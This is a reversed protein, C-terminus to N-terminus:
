QVVFAPNKDVRPILREPDAPRNLVIRVPHQVPSKRKIKEQVIKQMTCGRLHSETWVLFDLMFVPKSVSQDNELRVLEDMLRSFPYIHQLRKGRFVNARIFDVVTSEYLPLANQKNIKRVMARLSYYVHEKNGLEFHVLLYFLHIFLVTERDMHEFRNMTIRNLFQWSRKYEHAYFATVSSQLLYETFIHAPIKGAISKMEQEFYSLLETSKIFEGQANLLQQEAIATHVFILSKYYLTGYKGDTAPLRRIKIMLTNAEKIKNQKILTNLLRLLAPFYYDSQLVVKQNKDVGMQQVQLLLGEAEAVDGRCLFIEARILLRLLKQETGTTITEEKLLPSSEISSIMEEDAKTRVYAISRKLIQLRIYLFELEFLASMRQLSIQQERKFLYQLEALEESRLGIDMTLKMEKRIAQLLIMDREKELCLNKVKVTQKRAQRILSKSQLLEADHLLASLHADTNLNDNYSRMTRLINNYLQNKATSLYGTMEDGQLRKRLREENYDGMNCLLDFLKKYNNEEGKVHIGAYKSFYGRELRNLSQILLFLDESPKM